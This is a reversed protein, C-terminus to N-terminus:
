ASWSSPTPRGSVDAVMAHPNIELNHYITAVQTHDPGLVKETIVLARRYLHEAQDFRGMYKYLVALNNCIVSTELHDPGVTEEALKLAEVYLREAEAYRGETRRADGTSRLHHIVYLRATM